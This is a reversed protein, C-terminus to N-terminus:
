RKQSGAPAPLSQNCVEAYLRNVPGVRSDSFVNEATCSTNLRPESTTNPDTLNSVKVPTSNILSPDQKRQEGDVTAITEPDAATSDVCRDNKQDGRKSQCNTCIVQIIPSSSIQLCAYLDESIAACSCHIWGDCHDCQLAHASIGIKRLCMLCNDGSGKTTIEQTKEEPHQSRQEGRQQIRSSKRINEDM